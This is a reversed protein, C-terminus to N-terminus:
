KEIKKVSQESEKSKEEVNSVGMMKADSPTKGEIKGIQINLSTSLKDNEFIKAVNNRRQLFVLHRCYLEWIDTWLSTGKDIEVVNLKLENKCEEVNLVKGHSKYKKGDSLWKAVKEAQKKDGSLQYNKLWKEAFERAGEIASEARAITEPRLKSIMPYYLEIPDGNKTVNTRIMDLGDIFSRAPINPEMLGSSFQPDIPGLESLYGMLIEDAGLAIMTAASKAYDPVIVKFSESFRKRCMCLIKEAADGNGGPSNIMLIGKKSSGTTRLQDELPAIDHQMIMPVPHYPSATYVVLKHDLEKQIRRIIHVRHDQYSNTNTLKRLTPKLAM